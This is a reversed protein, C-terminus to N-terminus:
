VKREKSCARCMYMPRQRTEKGSSIRDMAKGCRPCHVSFGEEQNTAKIGRCLTYVRPIMEELYYAHRDAAETENETSFLPYKDTGDTDRDVLPHYRIRMM